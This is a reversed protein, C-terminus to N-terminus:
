VCPGASSSSAAAALKAKQEKAFRSEEKRKANIKKYSKKAKLEKTPKAVLKTVFDMPIAGHVISKCVQLTDNFRDEFVDYKQWPMKKDALFPPHDLKGIHVRKMKTVFTWALLEVQEDDLEKVRRVECRTEADVIDEMNKIAECLRDKYVATQENSVPYTNDLSIDPIRDEPIDSEKHYATSRRLFEDETNIIGARKLTSITEILTWRTTITTTQYDYDEHHYIAENFHASMDFGEMAGSGHQSM